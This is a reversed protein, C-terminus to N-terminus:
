RLAELAMFIELYSLLGYNFRCEVIWVLAGTYSQDMSEEIDHQLNRKRSYSNVPSQGRKEVAPRGQGHALGTVFITYGDINSPNQKSQLISANMPPLERCLHVRTSQQYQWLHAVMTNAIPLDLLQNEVRLICRVSDFNACM